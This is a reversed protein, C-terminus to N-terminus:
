VSSYSEDLVSSLRQQLEKDFSSNKPTRGPTSAQTELEFDESSFDVFCEERYTPYEDDDEDFGSLDEQEGAASMNILCQFTWQMQLLRVSPLSKKVPDDTKMIITHGSRILCEAKFDFLKWEEISDPMQDPVRRPDILGSHKYSPMWFLQAELRKEDISLSIPKLAFLAKQWAVHVDPSLTILNKCSEYPKNKEFVESMWADVKNGVM